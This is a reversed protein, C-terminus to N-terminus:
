NWRMGEFPNDNISSEQTSEIVEEKEEKLEPIFDEKLVKVYNTNLYKAFEDLLTFSKVQIVSNKNTSRELVEDAYERIVDEIMWLELLNKNLIIHLIKDVDFNWNYTKSSIELYSLLSKFNVHTRTHSTSIRNVYDKFLRLLYYISSQYNSNAMIEMALTCNETDSSKFMQALQDFETAGITLADDGNLYAILEEENVLKVATNNIAYSLEPLYKAEIIHYNHHLVNSPTEVEACANRLIEMINGSSEGTFFRRATSSVAIYDSTTSDLVTQLQEAIYADLGTVNELYAKILNKHIGYTYDNLSTKHLTTKSIFIADAEQINRVSKIGQEVSLNQLKVRPISTGPLFYYNEMPILKFGSNIRHKLANHPYLGISQIELNTILSAGNTGFSTIYFSQEVKATQM